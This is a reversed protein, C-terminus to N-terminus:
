LLVISILTHVGTDYSDITREAVLPMGSALSVNGTWSLLGDGPWLVYSISFCDTYFKSLYVGPYWASTTSDPFLADLFTWDDVPLMCYSVVAVIVSSFEEQMSTGNDFTCNVKSQNIVESAFSSKSYWLGLAPLNIIRARIETNNMPAYFSPEYIVNSHNLPDEVIRYGHVVIQYIFEDGVEIDWRLSATPRLIIPLVSYTAVICITMVVCLFGASRKRNM